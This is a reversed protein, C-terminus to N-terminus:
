KEDDAVVNKINFLFQVKSEEEDESFGGNKNMKFLTLKPEPNKIIGM